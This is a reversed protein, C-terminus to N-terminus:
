IILAILKYSNMTNFKKYLEISETDYSYVIQKQLYYKKITYLFYLNLYIIDTKLTFNSTYHIRKFIDIDGYKININISLNKDFYIHSKNGPYLCLHLDNRQLKFDIVYLSVTNKNKYYLSIDYNNNELIIGDYEFISIIIM